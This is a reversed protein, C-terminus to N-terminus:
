DPLAEVPGALVPAPISVDIATTAGLVPFEDLVRRLV